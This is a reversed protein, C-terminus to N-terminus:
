KETAHDVQGAWYRAAPRTAAYVRAAHSQAPTLKKGALSAAMPCPPAPDLGQSRLDNDRTYRCLGDECPLFPTDEGPHSLTQLDRIVPSWVNTDAIWCSRQQVLADGVARPMALEVWAASEMSAEPREPACFANFFDTRVSVGRHRILQSFLSLPIAKKILYFGARHTVTASEYGQSMECKIDLAQYARENCLRHVIDGLSSSFDNIAIKLSIALESLPKCGAENAAICLRALGRLSLRMSLTTMYGLPIHRRFQDQHKKGREADMKEKLFAIDGLDHTTAGSWIPWVDLSDVRSSRAWVVHDRQLCLLERVMIPVTVVFQFTAFENVPVDMRYIADFAPANDNPRSVTWADHIGKLGSFGVLRATVPRFVLNCTKM